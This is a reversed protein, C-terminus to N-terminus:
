LREDTQQFQIGLMDTAYVNTANQLALASTKMNDVNHVMPNTCEETSLTCSSNQQTPKSNHPTINTVMEMRTSSRM